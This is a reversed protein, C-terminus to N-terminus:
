KKRRAMIKRTGTKAMAKVRAPGKPKRPKRM